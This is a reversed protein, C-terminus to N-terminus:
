GPPCQRVPRLLLALAANSFTEEMSKGYAQFKGDAMHELLRYRDM